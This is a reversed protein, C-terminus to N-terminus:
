IYVDSRVGVTINRIRKKPIKCVIIKNERLQSTQQEM